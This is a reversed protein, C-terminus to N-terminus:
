RLSGGVAPLLLASTGDGGTRKASVRLWVAAGVDFFAAPFRASADPVLSVEGVTLTVLTPAVAVSPLPCWNTGDLSIEALLELSTVATGSLVPTVTVVNFPAVSMRAPGETVVYATTLIKASANDSECWLYQVPLHQQIM